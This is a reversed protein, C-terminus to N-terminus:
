LQLKGVVTPLASLLAAKVHQQLSCMAICQPQLMRVLLMKCLQTSPHRQRHVKLGLVPRIAPVMRWCRYGGASTPLEWQHKQPPGSLM